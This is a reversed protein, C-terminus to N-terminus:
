VQKKKAISDRLSESNRLVDEKTRDIGENFDNIAVKIADLVIKIRRENYTWWNSPTRYEIGYSKPRFRGPAGYYALRPSADYSSFLPYLYYDLCRVLRKKEKKELLEVGGDGLHIHGGAMRMLGIKDPDVDKKGVEYASFDPECGFTNFHRSSQFDKSYYGHSMESFEVTLHNYRGLIYNKITSIRDDILVEPHHIANELPVPDFGIELMVNDNHLMASFKGTGRKGDLYLVRPNKKDWETGIIYESPTLEMDNHGVGMKMLFEIDAGIMLSSSNIKKSVSNTKQM